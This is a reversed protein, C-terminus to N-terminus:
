HRNNEAKNVINITMFNTSEDYIYIYIYQNIPFDVVLTIKEFNFLWPDGCLYFVALPAKKDSISILFSTSLIM